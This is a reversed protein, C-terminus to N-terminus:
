KAKRSSRGRQIAQMKVAAERQERAEKRAKQGRKAAQVRAAAAKREANEKRQARAKHMAQLKAAAADEDEYFAGALAKDLPLVKGAASIYLNARPRENASDMIELYKLLKHGDALVGFAVYSNDFSPCPAFTVYFQSTASHPVGTNAMGLIGYEAHKIHFSEDPLASGSATAGGDGNGSVVDGGQLWGRPKIRHIPSGPYGGSEKECLAFFNECTKPALQPFLEFVLRGIVGESEVTLEMFAFTRDSECLLKQFEQEAMTDWNKGKGQSNLAETVGGVKNARLWKVLKVDDGIFGAQESFVAVGAEHLYAPGGYENALKTLVKDYESPLLELITASAAADCKTAVAKAKQFAGSNIRGAVTFPTLTLDAMGM